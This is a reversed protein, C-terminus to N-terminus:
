SNNKKEDKNIYCLYLINIGPYENVTCVGNINFSEYPKGSKTSKYYLGKTNIYYSYEIKNKLKSSM